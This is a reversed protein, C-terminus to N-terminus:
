RIQKPTEDTLLRRCSLCRLGRTSLFPRPGFARNGCYPCRLSTLRHGLWLWVFFWGILGFVPGPEFTFLNQPLHGFFWLFPGATIPAALWWLLHATRRQRVQAM